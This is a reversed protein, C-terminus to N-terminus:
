RRNTRDSGIATLQVRTMSPRGCFEEAVILEERRSKQTKREEGNSHFQFCVHHFRYTFVGSEAKNDCRCRETSWNTRSRAQVFRVPICHTGEKKFKRSNFRDIKTFRIKNWWCCWLPNGWQLLASPKLLDTHIQTVWGFHTQVATIWENM